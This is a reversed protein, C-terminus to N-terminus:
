PLQLIAAIRIHDSPFKSNPLAVESQLEKDTPIDLIKNITVNPSVFIHDITGKFGVTYNTWKPNRAERSSGEQYQNYVSDLKLAKEAKQWADDTM